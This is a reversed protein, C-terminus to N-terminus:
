RDALARQLASPQEGQAMWPPLTVPGPKPREEKSDVAAGVTAAKVYRRALAGFMFDAQKRDTPVKSMLFRAREPNLLADRVLEDVSNIGNLRMANFLAALGGGALAGPAGGVAAGATGGAVTTWNELGANMVNQLISRQDQATNSQNPIKVSANSRNSRQLDAAVAELVKVEPETFVARLANRNTKVFTQLQDARLLERGSTAAETNSVFRMMVHDAVAKRLGQAADKDGGVRRRLTALQEATDQRSFLGGVINRVSEPDEAGILKGFAGRQADDLAAKRATAAQEVARAADGANGIKIDLEPFARLADAHNRRWNELKGADIAGTDRDIAAKRLSDVAYAEIAAMGDPGSAQRFQQVREFGSAGPQFVRGAVRASEVNYPAHDAPRALLPGLQRNDFTAARQRTAETATDLRAKADADFPTFGQEGAPSASNDASSAARAFHKEQGTETPLRVLPLDNGSHSDPTHERVALMEGIQSEKRRGSSVIRWYEDGDVKALEVVAVGQAEDSSPKVLMIRGDRGKHMQSWNRAVDTVMDWPDSYGLVEADAYHVSNAIHRTLDGRRVRIPLEGDGGVRPATGLDPQGPAVPVFTQNDRRSRVFFADKADKARIDALTLGGAQGNGRGADQPLRPDGSANGLGSRAEGEARYPGSFGQPGGPSYAGAGQSSGGGVTQQKREALWADTERKLVSALTDEERMQGAAVAQEEVLVKRSVANELDSEIAGRLQVLRAWAPSKGSRGREDAIAQSVRSRYASLEKFSVVDGVGGIASYISAEGASPPKALKPLDAMIEQATRKADQPPLGLTGDPDVAGWLRNEQEMAADRRRQLSTRMADGADEPRQGSGLSRRAGEEWTRADDITKATDADIAKLQDRLVRSVEDAAGDPQIADLATRRASNQEARRQMFDAPSRTQAERELAGLGMDGTQQFTTPKSGPVLPAPAADIKQMAARPDTAGDVLREGALRERGAQRMPATFNGTAEAVARTLAPIGTAVAGLGGGVIGGALAAAPDLSDPTFEQATASGAGAAGGAVADATVAGVSGSRGAMAQMLPSVAVGGRSLAGVVGAPVVSGAVGQGVGRAIRDNSTEAKTNAPDLEPRIAGMANAISRSGGFSDEPIQPIDTGAVANVGRTALNMGGRMLDVPAGLVGYIAENAGATANMPAGGFTPSQDAELEFGPPLPPTAGTAATAGTTKTEDDLEFGPPLPPLGSM